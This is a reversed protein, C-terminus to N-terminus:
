FYSLPSATTKLVYTHNFPYGGGINDFYASNELLFQGKETGDGDSHVMLYNVLLKFIGDKTDAGGDFDIDVDVKNSHAKKFIAKLDDVKIHLNGGKLPNAADKYKLGMHVGFLDFSHDLMSAMSVREFQYPM